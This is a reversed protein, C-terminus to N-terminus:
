LNRCVTSFSAAFADALSEADRGTMLSSSTLLKISLGYDERYTTIVTKHIDVVPNLHLQVKSLAGSLCHEPSENVNQHFFVSDIATGAPWDTCNERIDDIGVANGQSVTILQTQVCRALKSAAWSRPVSVRVPVLSICPGVVTDIGGVPASRGTVLTIYTIDQDGTLDHLLLAWAMNALVAVTFSEPIASIELKKAVDIRCPQAPTEPPVGPSMQLRLLGQTLRSSKLLNKWYALSSSRRNSQLMLYASFPLTDPLTTENQASELVRLILPVSLGDYQAHSVGIVLNYGAHPVHALTFSVVPHDFSPKCTTRWIKEHLEAVNIDQTTVRTLAIPLHELVVQWVRGRACMFVTRLIDLRNVLAKCSNDLREFDISTGLRLSIYNLATEPAVITDMVTSSQFDTTPLIDLVGYELGHDGLRHLIEDRLGFPVLSYPSPLALVVEPSNGISFHPLQQSITPFRLINPVSISCGSARAAAAIKMAVISDGGLHFFNDDPGLQSPALGLVGAWIQRLKEGAGGGPSLTDGKELGQKENTETQWCNRSSSETQRNGDLSSDVDAWTWIQKIGSTAVPMVDHLTTLSSSQLLNELVVHFRDMADRMHQESVMEPNISTQVVIREEDIHCEMMIPYTTLSARELGEQWEGLLGPDTVHPSSPSRQQVVVYAQFECADRCSQSLRRINQIGEHEHPIMSTAQSQLTDLFEWVPQGGRFRVRVPVTAITPGMVDEIGDIPCNRGSVTSAFTVDTVGGALQGLIIGTAAHIFTSPVHHKSNFQLPRSTQFVARVLSKSGNGHRLLQLRRGGSLYRQWFDRGKAIDRSMLYQIFVGFGISYGLSIGRYAREVMDLIRQLVLADYLSHHVTWVLSRRKRSGEHVIAFRTMPDGLGTSSAIDSQLHEQLREVCTWKIGEKLVGQLIGHRKTWFFRTRLIPLARVVTDWAARLKDLSVDEAVQLVRQVLYDGADLNTLSLLGEQLPTCPLLDEIADDELGYDAAIEHCLKQHEFPSPLLSFPAVMTEAQKRQSRTVAALDRLQPHRFIDAVTVYMNQKRAEAAVKMATVSHGGLQFLTDTLHIASPELGLVRSWVMQMKKENPAAPFTANLDQEQDVKQLLLKKAMERLYRRDLKGTLNPPVRQVTFLAAPVMYRPVRQSMQDQVDLHEAASLRRVGENGISGSDHDDFKIFGVLMSQSNNLTVVDALIHSAGTLCGALQMEIEGLEVRQGNLKVQADKRGEYILTGDNDYRVLDGTKYLRKSGVQGGNYSSIQALFLPDNIFSADTKAQDNLYGRSQAPGEILLEGIGGVPVLQNHNKPHVVWSRSAVAKGVSNGRPLKDFDVNYQACIVCCETPGYLVQLRPTRKKPGCSWRTLDHQSVAEGWLIVSTIGPVENPDILRAVTPTLGVTNVGFKRISGSLNGLIDEDSPICVCGGSLLTMFIEDLMVDFTYSAFQLVRSQSDFGQGEARSLLSSSIARHQVVVGKPEGTSGSTFITYATSEPSVNTSIASKLHLNSQLREIDVVSSGVVIVKCDGAQLLDANAASVLMIPCKVQEIIKESRLIPQKPELPVFAGGAKLVAIMAVVAWISKEFCTHVMVDPGVGAEMLLSAIHSSVLDLQWYTFRGDWADIAIANPTEQLKRLAVDHLTIEAPEPLTTANWELIRQIDRSSVLGIDALKQSLDGELLQQLVHFFQAIIGDMEFSSVTNSDFTAELKLGDVHPCCEIMVPYTSLGNPCGSEHQWQGLMGADSNDSGDQQVVLYLQFQCANQCSSDYAAINQIGDHEHQVMAIADDRLTDLLQGTTKQSEFRVRIPVTAITPGMIDEIGDLPSQRGSVTTGFVVDESGTLQILVIGMAARILTSPLHTRRKSFSVSQLRETFGRSEKPDPKSLRRPLKAIEFDALYSKWFRESEQVDRSLFYKMFASFDVQQGFGMGKQTYAREVLAIMGPMTWGDYLCHHITWVFWRKQGDDVIAYRALADGLGMPTARDIHLYEKLNSSQEWHIPENIIGQLITGRDEALFLRTRLISLQAVVTEWAIRFQESDISPTIHLVKQIMYESANDHGTLSLMGEQLPTCPFLDQITNKRLKYATTIQDLALKGEELPGLLSFPELPVKQTKGPKLAAKAALECIRSHRFIDVVALKMGEKRAQGALKIAALSDGGLQFFDDNIGISSKDLKLVDACIRLLKRERSGVPQLVLNTSENIACARSREAAAERLVNRDVKGSATMPFEQISFFATPVMYRPLSDFLKMQLATADAMPKLLGSDDSTEQLEPSLREDFLRVFAVPAQIGDPYSVLEVIVRTAKSVHDLISSEIEGLEVRQGHIKVQNDKRGIYVIEGDTTYKVLDGTKYLRGKRGCKGDFGRLLWEPAEIFAEATREPNNLYGSALVPGEILLEGISGIPTLQNHDDPDVIWAVSGASKGILGTTSTPTFYGFVCDVCCETPGYTNIVRSKGNWPACTTHSLVEGGFIITKVLPVEDASMLAAVTPTVELVNVSMKNITSALRNMREEDSPVCVCGGSGLTMFIEDICTDFTYSSFQFVRSHKNYGKFSRRFAQSSVIAGHEVVVGKPEGTRNSARDLEAYTFGADWADVALKDPTENAKDGFVGHLTGNVAEPLNANWRWIQRKDAQSAAQSQRQM